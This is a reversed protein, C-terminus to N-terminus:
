CTKLIEQYKKAFHALDTELGIYVSKIINNFGIFRKAQNITNSPNLFTPDLKSKVSLGSLTLGKEEAMYRITTYLAYKHKQIDM